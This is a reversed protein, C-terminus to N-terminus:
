YPASPAPTFSSTSPACAATTTPPVVAATTPVTPMATTLTTPVNTDNHGELSAKVASGLTTCTLITGVDPSRFFNEAARVTTTSDGNLAAASIYGNVATTASLSSYNNRLIVPQTYTEPGTVVVVSSACPSVLAASGAPRWFSSYGLSLQASDGSYCATNAAPVVNDITAYMAYLSYAEYPQELSDVMGGYRVALQARASLSADKMAWIVGFLGLLFLPMAIATELLAQGRSRSVRSM